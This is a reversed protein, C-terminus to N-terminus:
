LGGSLMAAQLYQPALSCPSPLPRLSAKAQPAPLWGAIAARRHLYRAAAGPSGVNKGWTSHPQGTSNAKPGGKRM